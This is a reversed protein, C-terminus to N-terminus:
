SAPWEEKNYIAKTTNDKSIYTAAIVYIYM